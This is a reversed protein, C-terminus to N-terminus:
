TPTFKSHLSLPLLFHAVAWSETCLPGLSTLEKLILALSLQSALPGPGDWLALILVEPRTWFLLGSTLEGNAETLPLFTRALTLGVLVMKFLAMVGWVSPTEKLEGEGECLKLKLVLRTELDEELAVKSNLDM